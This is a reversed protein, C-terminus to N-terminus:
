YTIRFEDMFKKISEGHKLTKNDRILQIGREKCLGELVAVIQTDNETAWSYSVFVKVPETM